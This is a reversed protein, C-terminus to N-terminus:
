LNAYGSAVAQRVARTLDEDVVNDGHEERLEELMMAVPEPVEVEVTETM